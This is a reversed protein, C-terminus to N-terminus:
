KKRDAPCRGVLPWWSYGVIRGWRQEAMKQQLVHCKRCRRKEYAAFGDKRTLPVSEWEHAM